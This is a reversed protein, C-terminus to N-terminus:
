CSGPSVPRCSGSCCKTSTGSCAPMALPLQIAGSVQLVWAPIALVSLLAMSLFFIRFPYAFLQRVSARPPEPSTPIAQM